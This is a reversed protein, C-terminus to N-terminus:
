AARAGAALLSCVVAALLCALLACRSCVDVALLRLVALTGAAFLLCLVARAGDAVLWVVARALVM